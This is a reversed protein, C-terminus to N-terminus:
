MDPTTKDEDGINMGNEGGSDQFVPLYENKRIKPTFLPNFNYIHVFNGSIHASPTGLSNCGL